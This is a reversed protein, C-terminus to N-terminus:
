KNILIFEVRRNKQRGKETTNDAIAELDGKGTSILKNTVGKELLYTKISETRKKSLNINNESTGVNDTHGIIEINIEPNKILFKALLLLYPKSNNDLKIQGSKFTINQLSVVGTSTIENFLNKLEM